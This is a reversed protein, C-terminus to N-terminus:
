EQILVQAEESDIFELRVNRIVAGTKPNTLSGASSVNTFVLSSVRSISPPPPEGSISKVSVNNPTKNEFLVDIYNQQGNIM